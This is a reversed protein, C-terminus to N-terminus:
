PMLFEDMRQQLYNYFPNYRLRQMDSAHISLVNREGRPSLLGIHLEYQDDPKGGYLSDSAPFPLAVHSLSYIAKPWHIGLNRVSLSKDTERNKEVLQLSDPSENTLYSLRFKHTTDSMLRELAEAPDKKLFPIVNDNRNLDFVILENGDNDVKDLLHNIVATTSVTADVASLFVQTM